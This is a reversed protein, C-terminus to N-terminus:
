PAGREAVIWVEAAGAEQFSRALAVLRQAPLERDPILRVEAGQALVDAINTEAGRWVMRGDPMVLTADPYAAQAAELDEVLSLDGDNTPAITGAILFFILM